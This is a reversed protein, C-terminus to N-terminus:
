SAWLSRLHDVAASRMQSVRAETCGLVDGIDAMTMSGYYYLTVVTRERESLANIAEVVQRQREQEAPGSSPDGALGTVRGLLAGPRDESGGAGLHDLGLVSAATVDRIVDRVEAVEMGAREAVEEEDPMRQLEGELDEQAQEINRAVRRVSRPVWDITRLEDFIAGRIRLLAYAEFKPGREPDFREVADILGIIGYSVLDARDVFDPLSGGIRAAAYKVLPAYHLILRERAPPSATRKYERWLGDLHEPFTTTIAPM